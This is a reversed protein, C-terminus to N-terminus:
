KAKKLNNVRNHQKKNSKEANDLVNKVLNVIRVQILGYITM